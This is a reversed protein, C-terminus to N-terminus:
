LEEAPDRIELKFQWGEFTLLMRGFDEWSIERGDVVVLPTHDIESDDWEIRGRVTQDAVQLGNGDDAIHKISLARRIKEILRGLLTFLDDEPDGVMQFQYGAPIEDRLEFAELAVINGLLRTQFHFEHTVGACDTIGIPEFRVHDFGEVGSLKAVEANFCRSCLQRYGGETSGYHILDYGPTTEDCGECHVQM